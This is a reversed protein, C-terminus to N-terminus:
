QIGYRKMKKYFYECAETETEFKKMGVKHGRESYYIEWQETKIICLKENPLGGVMISYLDKPVGIEDLKEELEIVTM